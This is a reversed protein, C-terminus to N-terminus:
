FFSRFPFESNDDDLAQSDYITVFYQLLLSIDDCYCLYTPPNYKIDEMWNMNEFTSNM